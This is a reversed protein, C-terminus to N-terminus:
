ILRPEDHPINRKLRQTSRSQGLIRCARRESVKNRGLADRCHGVGRRRKVPSLLKM